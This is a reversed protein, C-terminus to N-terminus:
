IYIYKKFDQKYHQESAVSAGCRNFEQDSGMLAKLQSFQIKFRSAKQYRITLQKM